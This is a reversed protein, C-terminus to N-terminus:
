QKVEKHKILQFLLRVSLAALAIMIVVALHPYLVPYGFIPVAQFDDFLFQVKMVSIYSFNSATELWQTFEPLAFIIACTFFATLSSRSISSILVILLAFSIAGTFHVVLQILHYDLITLAYPSEAYPADSHQTIYQIPTKWGENGFVVINVTLNLLEWVILVFLTYVFAAGLKAWVVAKRGNKSSFMYHDVGSSYEQSYIPSLGILLMVGMFIVAGFEVFNVSLGPGSHYNLDTLQVKELMRKELDSSYNSEHELQQLRAEIDLKVTNALLIKRDIALQIQESETLVDALEKGKERKSLLEAQENKAQEIKQETVPGEWLKYMERETAPTFDYGLSLYSMVLMLCLTVWVSKQKGIKYLEYKFLQM